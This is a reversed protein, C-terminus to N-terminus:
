RITIVPTPDETYGSPSPYYQIADNDNLSYHIRYRRKAGTGLLAKDVMEVSANPACTNTGGGISKYTGGKVKVSSADWAVEIPENLKNVVKISLQSM